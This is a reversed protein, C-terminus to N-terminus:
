VRKNKNTLNKERFQLEMEFVMLIQRVRERSRGFMKGIRDLTMGQKHRYQYMLKSVEYKLYKPIYKRKQSKYKKIIM